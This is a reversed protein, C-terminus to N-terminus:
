TWPGVGTVRQPTIRLVYGPPANPPMLSRGEGLYTGALRDLLEPAGGEQIRATGHVVLYPTMGGPGPDDTEISVVVRPDREVNQVKRYAGLHGTVLEDGELGVWVVTVQPSGDANLTVLHALGDGAVVARAAENLVPTGTAASETTDDAGSRDDTRDDSRDDTM